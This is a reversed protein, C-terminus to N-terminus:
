QGQEICMIYKPYDNRDDHVRYYTSSHLKIVHNVIVQWSESNSEYIEVFQLRDCETFIDQVETLYPMWNFWVAELQPCNIFVNKMAKLAMCDDFTVIKLNICDKILDHINNVDSSGDFHVEILSPCNYFLESIEEAWEIDCFTVKKINSHNIFKPVNKCILTIFEIEEVDKFESDCSFLKNFKTEDNEEYEIKEGNEKIVNFKVLQNSM